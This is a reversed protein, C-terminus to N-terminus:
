GAAVGRSHSVSWNFKPFAKAEFPVKVVNYILAMAFCAFGSNGDSACVHTAAHGVELHRYRGNRPSRM